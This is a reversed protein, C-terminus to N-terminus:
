NQIRVPMIIHLFSSKGSAPKFVGPNLPGSVELVVDEEPFNNLLDILFRYNFAIEGLEGEIKAEIFDEDEGIQPTAATLRLGDKEIKIKIINAANRAFLSTTKVAQSLDDRGVTVKTKFLAPIIKEVNPFEGDILRTFVQVQPLTFVAQNKNEIISFGIDEAKLDAAIRLIESLVQSPLITTFEEKKDSLSVTEMSMRYGDTAWLTLKGGAVVTKVGTLVPRGEDNSAAFVTHSLANKIMNFSFTNKIDPVKPFPPFDFPPTTAFMAKTKLTSVKLNNGDQLFEIKDTTLLSIFETLLKGPITTEGAKEVKAPITFVVGIELNTVGLTLKGEEAKILINSLIPLQPHSSINRGTITIVKQINEKLVFFHM